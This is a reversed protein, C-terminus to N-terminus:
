IIVVSILMGAMTGITKYVRCKNERMKEAETIDIQIQELYLEFNNIQTERDTIGLFEGIEIIKKIDQENLCSENSFYQQGCEKWINYIDTGNLNDLKEYVMKLFNSIFPDANSSIKELAFRINSNNYKIEGSILILMKKIQTLQKIRTVFRNSLDIGTMTGSIIIMLAGIIKIVM